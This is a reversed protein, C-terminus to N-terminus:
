LGQQNNISEEKNDNKKREVKLYMQKEVEISGEKMMWGSPLNYELKYFIKSVKEQNRAEMKNQKLEMENKKIEIENKKIEMNNKKIKIENKKIEMENKEIEM